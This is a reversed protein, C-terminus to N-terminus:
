HKSSSKYKVISYVSYISIVGIMFVYCIRSYTLCISLIITSILVYEHWKKCPNIFLYFCLILILYFGYANPNNFFSQIRGFSFVFVSHGLLSLNFKFMYNFIGYILVIYTFIMFINSIKKIEKSDFDVSLITIFLLIPFLTNLVIYRYSFISVFYFNNLVICQM